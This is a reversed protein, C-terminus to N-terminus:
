RRTLLGEKRAVFLAACVTMAIALGNISLVSANKVLVFTELSQSQLLWFTLCAKAICLTGWMLTLHWFLRRVRPRQALEADMPYFDGALRSVVPRTTALSVGFITALLLDSAVPQLFYLFTSGSVLAVATKLSILSATLLLLGSRRRRTALQWGIAGYSWTLAAVLAAQINIELMFTTFVVAPIVCAVLLNLAVRTLVPALHLTHIQTRPLVRTPLLTQTM